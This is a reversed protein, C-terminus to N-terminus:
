DLPNWENLSLTSLFYDKIEKFQYMPVNNSLTMLVSIELAYM